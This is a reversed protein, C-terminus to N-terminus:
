TYGKEWEMNDILSWVTYGIVNCGDEHIAKVMESM